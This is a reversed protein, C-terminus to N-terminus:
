PHTPNQNQCKNTNRTTACPGRMQTVVVGPYEGAAQRLLQCFPLFLAAPSACRSKYNLATLSDHQKGNNELPKSSGTLLKLTESLTGSYCLGTQIARPPQWPMGGWNHCVPLCPGSSFSSVHLDCSVGGVINAPNNNSQKEIGALGKLTYM